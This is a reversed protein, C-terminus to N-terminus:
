KCRDVDFLDNQEKMYQSLPMYVGITLPLM